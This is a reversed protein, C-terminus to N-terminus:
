SPTPIWQTESPSTAPPPLTTSDFSSSSQGDKACIGLHHRRHRVDYYGLIRFALALRGKLYEREDLKEHPGWVKPPEGSCATSLFPDTLLWGEVTFSFQALQSLRM